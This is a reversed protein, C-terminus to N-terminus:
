AGRASRAERALALLRNVSRWNRATAQVGLSTEVKARLKSQAFGGPTHLYFVSGKLAFAEGGSRLRALASLDPKVARASLFFLHL